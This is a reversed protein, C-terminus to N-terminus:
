FMIKLFIKKGLLGYYHDLMEIEINYNEILVNRPLESM